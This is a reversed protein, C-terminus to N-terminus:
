DRDDLIVAYRDAVTDWNLEDAAGTRFNAPAPDSALFTAISAAAADPNGFDVFHIGDIAEALERFIPIDAAIVPALGVAEVIPLGFGEYHSPIVFARAGAMQATVDADTLFGLITCADNNRIQRLTASQSWSHAGTLRLSLGPLSRQLSAFCDLLGSINKRPEISGLVFLYGDPTTASAPVPTKVFRVGLRVVDIRSRAIGLLAVMDDGTTNSVAVIRDARRISGDVLRRSVFRNWRDMTEPMLRHVLDHVTVITRLGRSKTPLVHSPGWLTDAGAGKALQNLRALMWISGPVRRWATDVVTEIPLVNDMHLPRNSFLILKFEPRLALRRLTEYLFRPVGKGTQTLVRADVAVVRRTNAPM